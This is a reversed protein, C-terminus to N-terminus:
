TALASAGIHTKMARAFCMCVCEPARLLAEEEVQVAVDDNAAREAFRLDCREVARDIRVTLVHYRALKERRRM